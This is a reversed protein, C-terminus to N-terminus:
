DEAARQLFQIEKKLIEGRQEKPFRKLSENEICLDGRYGGQSLIRAVQAFDIDGEYVPCCYKGYEWGIARKRNRQDSPYHISKCHTHCAASAFERYIEYLKELPHGYWYFNATDLTLGVRESAVGAFLPRLFDPRNTTHGHNEVGFRVPMKDTAQIIRRGIAVAFELFAEGKLKRSVVDLRIAPVGLQAAVRTVRTVFVVEDDPREDFHNALCFATIKVKHAAAADALQKVGQKDAISYKKKPDFLYPCSLDLKVTVEVGGAGITELAAFADPEGVESLHADRCAIIWSPRPPKKTSSAQSTM